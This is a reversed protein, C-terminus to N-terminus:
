LGPKDTKPGTKYAQIKNNLFVQARYKKVQGESERRLHIKDVGKEMLRGKQQGAFKQGQPTYLLYRNNTPMYIYTDFEVAVDDQLESIDMQLMNENASQELRGQTMSNPFFAMAIESSGHISKRLFEAQDIAWAEFNVQEIKLDMGIEGDKIVEGHKRLFETLRTKVSVIFSEDIRRDEGMAAVLYGSFRPSDVVICAVSSSAAVAEYEELNEIRHVSEGLAEHTGRVLISELDKMSESRLHNTANAKEPGQAPNPISNGTSASSSKQTLESKDAANGGSGEADAGDQSRPQGKSIDKAVFTPEKNDNESKPEEALLQELLQRARIDESLASGHDKIKEGSFHYVGKETKEGQSIIVADNGEGSSRSSSATLERNAEREAQELQRQEDKKMRSMLREISPGSLPPFLVYELKLDNLTQMAQPTANEIFGIVKVKLAQNLLKPLLKVKKHTHDVAIFVFDPKLKITSSLVAKLSDTAYVQWDRNALYQEVSILSQPKCKLIVIKYSSM